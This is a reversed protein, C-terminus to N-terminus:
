GIIRVTPDVVLKVIPVTILGHTEDQFAGSLLWIIIDYKVDQGVKGNLTGQLRYTTQTARKVKHNTLESAYYFTTNNRKLTGFEPVKHEDPGPKVVNYVLAQTSESPNITHGWWALTDGNKAQVALNYTSTLYKKGDVIRTDKETIEYGIESKHSTVLRVYKPVLSTSPRHYGLRCM